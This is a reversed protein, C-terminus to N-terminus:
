LVNLIIKEILNKLELMEKNQPLLYQDLLESM